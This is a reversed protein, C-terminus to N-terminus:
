IVGHFFKQVPTPEEDKCDSEMSSFQSFNFQTPLPISVSPFLNFNEFKSIEFNFATGSAFDSDDELLSPTANSPLILESTQEVSLQNNVMANSESITSIANPCTLCYSPLPASSTTNQLGGQTMSRTTVPMRNWVRSFVTLTTFLDELSSFQNVSTLVILWFPVHRLLTAIVNCM